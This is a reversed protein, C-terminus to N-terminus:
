AASGGGNHSGNVDVTDFGVGLHTGDGGIVGKLQQEDLQRAPRRQRKESDERELPQRKM